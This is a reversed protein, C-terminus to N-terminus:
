IHARAHSSAWAVVGAVRCGIGRRASATVRVRTQSHTAFRYLSLLSAHTPTSALLFIYFFYLYFRLTCVSSVCIIPAAPTCVLGHAGHYRVSLTGALHRM